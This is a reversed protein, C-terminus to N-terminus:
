TGAGGPWWLTVLRRPPQAAAPGLLDDIEPDREPGVCLRRRTFAVLEARDHDDWLAGREFEESGVELGMERLVAVADPATPATPREVGHVEKWLRNLNSQPHVATLEVVVRRRAYRTLAEAFPVLDAVNYFVHHCVVVDAPEVSPAVEPWRGQVERHAVGRREAAAAVEALMGASQDVATLLAAPPALPLGAAGGGAGVDLVSGGDPLAERARRRSPSGVPDELAREAAKAFLSTPFQWPSEPAQDLIERPVSWQALAESWFAAADGAHAM